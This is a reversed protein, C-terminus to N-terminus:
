FYAICTHYGIILISTQVWNVPTEGQSAYHLLCTRTHHNRCRILSCRLKFVFCHLTITFISKQHKYKLDKIFHAFYVQFFIPGLSDDKLKKMFTWYTQLFQINIWPVEVNEDAHDTEHCRDRVDETGTYFCIAFAVQFYTTCSKSARNFCVFLCCVFLFCRM